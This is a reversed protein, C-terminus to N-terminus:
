PKTLLPIHVKDTVVKVQVTTVATEQSISNTATVEATYNGPAAYPHAVVRGSGNNGDGFDWAYSVNSGNSVAATLVTPIGPFTPGDNAATLGSIAVIQCTENVAWGMDDFMCLTVPGPNYITEGKSISYTMLAGPTGNFSEALHSYSSGQKWTSPAYLPVRGGGNAFNAGPGDFFVSNSTLQSALASSYNSFNLLATGAGNETYRDYIAPFGDYGYCGIGAIGTCENNGSGNDVRMSGFFGLGHGLEHLVVTSFNIKDAPTTSGTGFYWNPYASSFTAQIDAASPNLDTNALKNATAVPFWTNPQPANPFDRYITTPGAGGLIGPNLPGFQADVVIPLPSTILSEWIDVAYEFATRAENTWGSGLYNVVINAGEAQDPAALNQQFATPPAVYRQRVQPDLHILITPGPLSNIQSTSVAEAGPPAARTLFILCFVLLPLILWVIKKTMHKEAPHYDIKILFHKANREWIGARRVM